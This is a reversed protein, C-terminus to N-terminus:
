CCCASSPSSCGGIRRGGEGARACRGRERRARAHGRRRDPRRTRARASMALRGGDDELLALAADRGASRAVEVARAATALRSVALSLLADADGRLAPSDKFADTLRGLAATSRAQASLYPELYEPRMTLVFGRQGTEADRLVDLVEDAATAQDNARTALARDSRVADTVQTTLFIAAAGAIVVVVALAALRTRLQLGPGTM